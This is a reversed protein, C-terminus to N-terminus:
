IILLRKAGGRMNVLVNWLVNFGARLRRGVGRAWALLAKTIKKKKLCKRGFGLGRCPGCSETGVKVHAPIHRHVNGLVHAGGM